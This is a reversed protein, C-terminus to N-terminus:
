SKDYKEVLRVVRVKVYIDGNEDVEPEGFFEYRSKLTFQFSSVLQIDVMIKAEENEIM